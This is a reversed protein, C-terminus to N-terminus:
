PEQSEPVFGDGPLHRGNGKGGHRRCRCGHAAGDGAVIYQLTERHGYDQEKTIPM